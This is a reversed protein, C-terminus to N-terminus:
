PSADLLGRLVTLGRRAGDAEDLRCLRTLRDVHSALEAAEEALISRQEHEDLELRSVETSRVGATAGAVHVTGDPDPTSADHPRAQANALAASASRLVALVATDRRRM